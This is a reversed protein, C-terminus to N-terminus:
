NVTYKNEKLYSLTASITAAAPAIVLGLVPIFLLLVFGGGIGTIQAKHKRIYSISDTTNYGKSELIFDSYNAGAYYSQVLFLAIASAFSGVVPIFNLLLCPFTFLLEYFISWLAIKLTRNLMAAFPLATTAANGNVTKEVEDCLATMFPSCVVLVISKYLLLSLLVWLVLPIIELFIAKILQWVDASEVWGARIDLYAAWANYATGGVIIAGLVISILGTLFVYKRIQPKAFLSFAQKYISLGAIFANLM